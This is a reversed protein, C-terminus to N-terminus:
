VLWSFSLSSILEDVLVRLFFSMLQRHDASLLQYSALLKKNLTMLQHETLLGNPLKPQVTVGPHAKYSDIGIMWKWWTTVAWKSNDSSSRVNVMWLGDANVMWLWYGANKSRLWSWQVGGLWCNTELRGQDFLQWTGPVAIGPVSAAASPYAAAKTVSSPGTIRWPQAPQKYHNVKLSDNALLMPHKQKLERYIWYNSWTPITTWPQHHKISTVM